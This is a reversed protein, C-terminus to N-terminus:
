PAASLSRMSRPYPGRYAGCNKLVAVRGSFSLGESGTIRVTITQQAGQQGAPSEERAGQRQQGQGQQMTIEIQGGGHTRQATSEQSSPTEEGVTPNEQVTTGAQTVPTQDESAQDVGGGGLSQACGLSMVAVLVSSALLYPVRPKCLAKRM